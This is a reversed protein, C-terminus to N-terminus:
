QTHFNPPHGTPSKVILIRFFDFDKYKKTFDSSTSIKEKLSLSSVFKLSPISFELRRQKTIRIADVSLFEIDKSILYPLIIIIEEYSLGFDNIGYEILHKM